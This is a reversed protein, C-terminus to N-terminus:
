ICCGCVEKKKLELMREKEIKWLPKLKKTLDLLFKKVTQPNKAM